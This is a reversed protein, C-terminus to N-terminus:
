SGLGEARRLGSLIFTVIEQEIQEESIPPKRLGFINSCMAFHVATGVAFGVALGPDLTRFAGEKQRVAVYRQLFERRPSGFREHFLKSMLHGELFSYLILRHFAPDEEFSRLVEHVIAGFLGADDRLRAREELQQRLRRTRAPDTKLDLIAHYLDEKTAFHRFLIAESVGAAAAIDKTKTGSFGQRAFSEIAARLLLRRRDEGAMRTKKVTSPAPAEPIIPPHPTSIMLLHKSTFEVV